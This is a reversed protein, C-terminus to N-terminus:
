LLRLRFSMVCAISSKLEVCTQFYLVCFSPGSFLVHRVYQNIFDLFSRPTIAVTRGGRAVLRDNAKYMTQHVFVMANVIVDRHTPPMPLNEYVM